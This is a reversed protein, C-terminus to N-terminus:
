KPCFLVTLKSIVNDRISQLEDASLNIETIRRELKLEYLKLGIHYNIAFERNNELEEDLNKIASNYFEDIKPTDSYPYKFDFIRRFETDLETSKQKLAVLFYFEHLARNNIAFLEYLKLKDNKINIIEFYTNIYIQKDVSSISIGSIKELKNHIKDFVYNASIMNDNTLNNDDINPIQLKRDDTYCEDLYLGISKSIECFYPIVDSIMDFLEFDNGYAFEYDPNFRHKVFKIPYKYELYQKDLGIKTNYYIYGFAGLEDLLKVFDIVDDLVIPTNDPKYIVKIFYFIRVLSDGSNINIVYYITDNTLIETDMIQNAKNVALENSYDYQDIHRLGLNERYNMVLDIHDLISKFYLSASMFDGNKKCITDYVTLKYYDKKALGIIKEPAMYLRFRMM